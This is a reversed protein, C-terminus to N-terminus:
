LVWFLCLSAGWFIVDISLICRTDWNTAFWQLDLPFSYKSYTKFSEAINFLPHSDEPFIELHFPMKVIEGHNSFDLPVNSCLPTSSLRVRWGRAGKAASPSACLYHGLCHKLNPMQPSKFFFVGLLRAGACGTSGPGACGTSGAGRVRDVDEGDVKCNLYKELQSWRHFHIKIKRYIKQQRGGTPDHAHVCTQKGNIPFARPM